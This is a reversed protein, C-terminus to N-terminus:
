KLDPGQPATLANLRGQEEEYARKAAAEDHFTEERPPIGLARGRIEPPVLHYPTTNAMVKYYERYYRSKPATPSLDFYDGVAKGERRIWEMTVSEVFARHNVHQWQGLHKVQEYGCYPLPPYYGAILSRIIYYSGQSFINGIVKQDEVDKIRFFVQPADFYDPLEHDEPLVPVRALPRTAGAGRVYLHMALFPSCLWDTSALRALLAEIDEAPQEARLAYIKVLWSGFTKESIELTHLVKAYGYGWGYLLPIEVLTGHTINRPRKLPVTM